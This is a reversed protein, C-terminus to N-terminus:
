PKSSEDSAVVYRLKQVQGMDMRTSGSQRSLTVFSVYVLVSMFLCFISAAFFKFGWMGSPKSQAVM